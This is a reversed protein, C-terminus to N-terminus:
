RNLSYVKETVILETGEPGKVFPAIWIRARYVGPSTEQALKHKPGCVQWRWHGRVIWRHKWVVNAHGELGGGVYEARRLQIVTVGSPLNKRKARRAVAREATEERVVTITQELMLWLAHAIRVMNTGDTPTDGEARVLAKAKENPSIIKPGLRHGNGIVDGGIWRWDGLVSRVWEESVGARFMEEVEDPDTADNWWTILLAENNAPVPCWTLYHAKMIRGRVDQILIPTEFRVFGTPTPALSVDVFDEEDLSDAAHQVLQVMDRSVYFNAAGRVGQGFKDVLGQAVSESPPLLTEWALKFSERVVSQFRTDELHSVLDLHKTLVGTPTM